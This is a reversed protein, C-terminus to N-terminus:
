VDQESTINFVNSLLTQDLIKPRTYQITSKVIDTGNKVMPRHVHKKKLVYEWDQWEMKLKLCLHPDIDFQDHWATRPITQRGAANNVEWTSVPTVNAKTCNTTMSQLVNEFHRVEQHFDNNEDQIKQWLTANFYDYLIYDVNSWRRHAEVLSANETTPKRYEKLNKPSVNYLIDKLTWCMMRRLLVLSESFHELILVLDIERAIKQVFEDVSSRDDFLGPPFGLDYAMFNKSLTYPAKSKTVYPIQYKEPDKLFSAVPDVGKLEPFRKALGYGNFVSRLQALPHRLIAIYVTDPPMIHDLLKRHYVTHDVLVNFTGDASPIFDERKLINPWGVESNIKMPLVFTLNHEYGFRQFICTATTGGAKHVKVFVFNQKVDCIEEGRTGSFKRNPMKHPPAWNSSPMSNEYMNTSIFGIGVFVLFGLFTCGWFATTMRSSAMHTVM